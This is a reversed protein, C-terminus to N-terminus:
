AYYAIRNNKKQKFKNKEKTQEDIQLTERLQMQFLWKNMILTVENTTWTNRWRKLRCEIRLKRGLTIKETSEDIWYILETIQSPQCAKMKLRLGKNIKTCEEIIGDFFVQKEEMM